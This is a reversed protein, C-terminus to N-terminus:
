KLSRYYSELTYIAALPNHGLLRDKVVLVTCPAQAYKLMLSDHGVCLGMLINFETGTENLILAQAIPNCMAEFSGPQIKHEEKLGIKEKPQRGLKCCVSVVEFGNDGLLHDVAKAEKALGVCFVLGLRKFRMKRAFEITEQIRPKIPKVHEYGLEKDGYGEGEQIAANRVFEINEPKHMEAVAHLVTRERHRTPCNDPAKGNPSMCLRDSNKYPCQGCQPYNSTM